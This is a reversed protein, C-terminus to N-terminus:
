SIIPFPLIIVQQYLAKLYKFVLHETHSNLAKFLSFMKTTAKDM